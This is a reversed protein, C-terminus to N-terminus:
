LRSCLLIAVFFIANLSLPSGINQTMKTYIFPKKTVSYDYSILHVLILISIIFIITDDSYAVFLSKLVPTLICLILILLFGTKLDGLINLPQMIDKNILLFLIYLSLGMLAFITLILEEPVYSYALLNHILIFCTLANIVHVIEFTEKVLSTYHLQPFSNKHVLGKLFYDDVYNDEMGPPMPEYFNRPKRM